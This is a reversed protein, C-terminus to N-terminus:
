PGRDAPSFTASVRQAACYRQSQLLNPRETTNGMANGQDVPEVSVWQHLVGIPPAVPSAQRVLLPSLM